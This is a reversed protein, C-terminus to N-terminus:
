PPLIEHQIAKILYASGAESLHVIDTAVIDM